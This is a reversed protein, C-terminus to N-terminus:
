EEYAEGEIVMAEEEWEGPEGLRQWFTIQTIPRVFQKTPEEDFSAAAPPVDSDRLYHDAPLSDFWAAFSAGYPIFDVETDARNNSVITFNNGNTM